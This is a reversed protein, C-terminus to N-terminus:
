LIFNLGFGFYLSGGETAEDLAFLYNGNIDFAAKATLFFKLGFTLGMQGSDDSDSLDRKYYTTGLYPVTNSQTLFSYSLFVTTGFTANTESSTQSTLTIPDFTTTEVSIVTITPGFGLQFNDTLYPGIKGLISGFTFSADTGVATSISGQVGLEVDGAEQQARSSTLFGSTGILILLFLTRAM